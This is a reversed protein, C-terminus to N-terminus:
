RNEWEEDSMGNRPSFGNIHFEVPTIQFVGTDHVATLRNKDDTIYEYVRADEVLVGYGSM